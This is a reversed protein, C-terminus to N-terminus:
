AAQEVDPAHEIMWLVRDAAERAMDLEEEHGPKAVVKVSSLAALAAKLEPAYSFLIANAYIQKRWHPDGENTFALLEDPEAGDSGAARIQYEVHGPQSVDVVELPGPHHRIVEGFNEVSRFRRRKRSM